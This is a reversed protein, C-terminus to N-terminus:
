SKMHTGAQVDKKRGFPLESPYEKLTCNTRSLANTNLLNPTPTPRSPTAKRANQKHPLAWTSPWEGEKSSQALSSTELDYDNPTVSHKKEPPLQTSQRPWRQSQEFLRITGEQPKPPQAVDQTHAASTWCSAAATVLPQKRYSSADSDTVYPTRTSTQPLVTGETHDIHYIWQHHVEPHRLENLRDIDDTAEQRTTRPLPTQSQHQRHAPM